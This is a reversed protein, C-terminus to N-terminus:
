EYDSDSSADNEDDSSSERRARSRRTRKARHSVLFALDSKLDAIETKLGRTRRNRHKINQRRLSKCADGLVQARTQAAIRTEIEFELKSQLHEIQKRDAVYDRMMYDLQRDRSEIMKELEAIKAEM